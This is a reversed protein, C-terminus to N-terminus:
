CCETLPCCGGFIYKYHVMGRSPWVDHLTKNVEASCRRHLLSAL